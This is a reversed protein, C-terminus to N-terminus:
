TKSESEVQERVNLRRLRRLVVAECPLAHCIDGAVDDVHM